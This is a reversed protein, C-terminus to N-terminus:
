GTWGRERAISDVAARAEKLGAGTADRYAKIAQLRKGAELAQVVQPLAPEVIGLHDMIAQLQREIRALRRARRKEAATWLTVVLWVFVVLPLFFFLLLGLTDM